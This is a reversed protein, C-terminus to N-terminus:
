FMFRHFILTFVETSLLAGESASELFTLDTSQSPPLSLSLPFPPPPYSSGLSEWHPVARPACHSLTTCCIGAHVPHQLCGGGVCVCVCRSKLVVLLDYGDEATFIHIVSESTVCSALTIYAAFTALSSGFRAPAMLVWVRDTRGTGPGFSHGHLPSLPEREDATGALVPAM